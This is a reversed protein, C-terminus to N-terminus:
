TDPIVEFKLVGTGRQYDIKDFEGTADGFFNHLLNGRFEHCDTLLAALNTKVLYDGKIPFNDPLGSAFLRIHRVDQVRNSYKEIIKKSPPPKAVQSVWAWM